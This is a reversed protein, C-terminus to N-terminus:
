GSGCLDWWGQVNRTSSNSVASIPAVCLVRVTDLRHGSAQASCALDEMAQEFRQLHGAPKYSSADGRIQDVLNYVRVTCVAEYSNPM